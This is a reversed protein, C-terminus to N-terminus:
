AVFVSNSSWSSMSQLTESFAVDLERPRDVHLGFLAYCITSHVYNLIIYLVSHGPNGFEDSSRKFKFPTGEDPVYNDLAPQSCHVWQCAQFYDVTYQKEKYDSDFSRADLPHILTQADWTFKRLSSWHKRAAAPDGSLKWLDAIREIDALEPRGAYIKRAHYLWANKYEFSFTVFQTARATQLAPVATIYRLILACEVITRSLGYGEDASNEKILLICARALSVVKSMMSSAITDFPYRQIDRPYFQLEEVATVARKLYAEVKLIDNM